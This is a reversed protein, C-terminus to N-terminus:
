CLPKNHLKNAKGGERNYQNNEVHEKQLVKNRAQINFNPLLFGSVRTTKKSVLNPNLPSFITSFLNLPIKFFGGIVGFSKLRLHQILVACITDIFQCQHNKETYFLCRSFDLKSICVISMKSDFRSHAFYCPATEKNKQFCLFM